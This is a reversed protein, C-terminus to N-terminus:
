HFLCYTTGMSHPQTLNSWGPGPGAMIQNFSQEWEEERM